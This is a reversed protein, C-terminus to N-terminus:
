RNTDSLENSLETRLVKASSRRFLRYLLINHSVTVFGMDSGCWGCRVVVWSCLEEPRDVERFQEGGDWVQHPSGAVHAHLVYVVDFGVPLGSLAM